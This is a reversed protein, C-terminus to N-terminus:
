FDTSVRQGIQANREFHCSEFFLPILRLVTGAIRHVFLILCVVSLTLLALICFVCDIIVIAASAIFIHFWFPFWYRTVALMLFLSVARILFFVAGLLFRDFEGFAVPIIQRLVCSL